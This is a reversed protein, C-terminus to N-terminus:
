ADDYKAGVRDLVGELYTERATPNDASSATRRLAQVEELLGQLWPLHKCYELEMEALDNDLIGARQDVLYNTKM